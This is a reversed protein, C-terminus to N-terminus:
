NKIYSEYLLKFKHIMYDSKKLFKITNERDNKYHYCVAMYIMLKRDPIKNNVLFTCLEFASNNNQINNNEFLYYEIYKICIKYYEDIITHAFDLLYIYNSSKIIADKNISYTGDNNNDINYESNFVPSIYYTDLANLNWSTGLNEDLKKFENHMNLIIKYDQNIKENYINSVSNPNINNYLYIHDSNIILGRKNKLIINDLYNLYFKFDDLIYCNECYLKRNQEIYTRNCLILRIITLVGNELINSHFPNILMESEAFTKKIGYGIRLYFNNQLYIDSNDYSATSDRITDNGHICVVDLKDFPLKSLQHLAYPYLFDDGDIPILYDYELKNYFIDLVSNHGKGPKGNSTTEIIEINLDSFEKCVLNYYSKNLSNVIIIITYNINHNKQNVISNYSLKLLKENSSTLLTILFKM